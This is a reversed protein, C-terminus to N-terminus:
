ANSRLWIDVYYKLLSLYFVNFLDDITIFGTGVNYFCVEVSVAIGLFM